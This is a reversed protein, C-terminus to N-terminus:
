KLLFLVIYINEFHPFHKRLQTLQNVGSTRSGSIFSTQEGKRQSAANDKKSRELICYTMAIIYMMLKISLQIIKM